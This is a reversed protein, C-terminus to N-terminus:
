FMLLSVVFVSVGLFWTTKQVISESKSAGVTQTVMVAKGKPNQILVLFTLAISLIVLLIM